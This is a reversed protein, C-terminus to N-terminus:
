YVESELLLQNEAFRTISFPTLDITEYKGLRILESLAKGAAPAQQFGHGSFGTLLYYGNMDPHKGIIANHDIYNYEYLGAWGTELKLQDFNPSREALLPWVEENFYSRDLTFDFNFSYDQQETENSGERSGIIVKLGEGQFYTGLYDFVFPIDTKFPVALDVCYVQKRYPRVPIDVGMTKSIEGSWAGAANVVIPAHYEAGTELKVGKVQHLGDTLLAQVKEYVYEVGLRKAHRVYWQLVSYPDANGGEVDFVAGALDDVNLEPVLSKTEEPTLLQVNVDYSKQVKMNEKLLSLAQENALYLYGHQKFDIVAPEDDLAMEKEFNKLVQLSLKSMQINGPISFTQRFGGYCRPTSSYEYMRDKEFVVISGTYGDKRLNYALSSAMIGGGVIILDYKKIM